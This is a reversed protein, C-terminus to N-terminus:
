RSVGLWKDVVTHQKDGFASQTNAEDDREEWDSVVDETPKTKRAM